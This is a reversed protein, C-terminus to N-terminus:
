RLWRTLPMLAGSSDGGSGAGSPRTGGSGGLARRARSKAVPPAPREHGRQMRGKPATARSAPAAAVAIVKESRPGRRSRAWLADSAASLTPRPSRAEENRQQRACRCRLDPHPLVRSGLVDQAVPMPRGDELARARARTEPASVKWVRPLGPPPSPSGKAAQEYGGEM